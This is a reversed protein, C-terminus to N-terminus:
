CMRASTASGSKRLLLVAFLGIALLLASAPEPAPLIDFVLHNSDAPRYSGVNTVACGTNDSPLGVCDSWGNLVEQHSPAVTLFTWDILVPSTSLDGFAYSAFSASIYQMDFTSWFIHIDCCSLFHEGADTSSLTTQLIIQDGVHINSLDTGPAAALTEIVDAHVPLCTLGVLCLAAACIPAALALLRFLKTM